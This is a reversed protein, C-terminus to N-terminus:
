MGLLLLCKRVGSGFHAASDPRNLSCRCQPKSSQYQNIHALWYKETRVLAVNPIAKTGM